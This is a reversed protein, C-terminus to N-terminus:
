DLDWAPIVYNNGGYTITIWIPTEETCAPANTLVCTASGSATVNSVVPTGGLTTVGILLSTGVVKLNNDGVATTDGVSLGGDIHVETGTPDLLLDGAVTDIEAEVTVVGDIVALGVAGEADILLAATTFSDAGGGVTRNDDIKLLPTSATANTSVQKIDIEEDAADFDIDIDENVDLGGNFTQVGAASVALVDSGGISVFYSNDASKIGWQLEDNTDDEDDCALEAVCDLGEGSELRWVIKEAGLATLACFVLGVVLVGCMVALRTAGIKGDRDIDKGFHRECVGLLLRFSAWLKDLSTKLETTEKASAGAGNGSAGKKSENM